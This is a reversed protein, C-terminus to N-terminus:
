ISSYISIKFVGSPLAVAVGSTLGVHSTKLRILEDETSVPDNTIANTNPHSNQKMNKKKNHLRAPLTSPIVPTTPAMTSKIARTSM